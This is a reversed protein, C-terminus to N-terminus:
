IQSKVPNGQTSKIKGLNWVKYYDKWKIKLLM